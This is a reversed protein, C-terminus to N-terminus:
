SHIISGPLTTVCRHEWGDLLPLFIVRLQGHLTPAAREAPRPDMALDQKLFLYIFPCSSRAVSNRNERKHQSVTSQGSSVTRTVHHSTQVPNWEKQLTNLKWESRKALLYRQFVLFTCETDSSFRQELSRHSASVWALIGHLTPAAQEADEKAHRDEQKSTVTIVSMTRNRGDSGANVIPIWSYRTNQWDSALQFGCSYWNVKNSGERLPWSRGPQNM